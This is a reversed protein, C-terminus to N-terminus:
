ISALAQAVSDLSRQFRDRNEPRQNLAVNSPHLSEFSRLGPMASAVASRAKAANGGFFVVLKLKPLLGILELLFPTGAEIDAQTAQRIRSEGGIYWPVVNWMLTRRRDIGARVCASFLNKSTQSNNNQSAFGSAKAWKGPAELLFLCEAEVGGDWPDFDPVFFDNTLQRRLRTAFEDLPRVHSAGSARRRDAIASTSKLLQACDNAHLPIMAIHHSVNELPAIQLEHV